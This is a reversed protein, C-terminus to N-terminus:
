QKVYKLKWKEQTQVNKKNVMIILLITKTSETETLQSFVAEWKLVTPKCM